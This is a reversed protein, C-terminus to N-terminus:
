RRGVILLHCPEGDAHDRVASRLREAWLLHYRARVTAPLLRVLLQVATAVRYRGVGISAPGDILDWFRGLSAPIYGVTTM